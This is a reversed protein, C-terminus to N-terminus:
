KNSFYFALKIVKNVQFFSEDGFEVEDSAVNVLDFLIPNRIFSFKKKIIKKIKTKNIDM